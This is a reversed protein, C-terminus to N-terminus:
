AFDDTFRSDGGLFKNLALSFAKLEVQGPLCELNCEGTSWLNALNSVKPTKGGGSGFFLMGRIQLTKSSAALPSSFAILAAM